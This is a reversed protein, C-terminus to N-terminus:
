DLEMSTGRATTLKSALTLTDDKSLPGVHISLVEIPADYIAAGNGPEIYPRSVHLRVESQALGLASAYM